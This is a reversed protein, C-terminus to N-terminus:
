APLANRLVDADLFAGHKVEFVPAFKDFKIVRAKKYVALIAEAEAKTFGKDMVFQIFKQTANM